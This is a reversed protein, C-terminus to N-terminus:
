AIDDYLQLEHTRTRESARACTHVYARESWQVLRSRAADLVLRRLSGSSDVPETM